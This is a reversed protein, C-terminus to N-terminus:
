KQSRDKEGKRAMSLCMALNRAPNVIVSGPDGGHQFVGGGDLFRDSGESGEGSFCIGLGEVLADAPYLVFFKVRLANDLRDAIVEQGLADFRSLVVVGSAKRPVMGNDESCHFGFLVGAGIGSLHQALADLSQAGVVGDGSVFM